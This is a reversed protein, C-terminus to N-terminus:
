FIRTGPLRPQRSVCLVRCTQGGQGSHVGAVREGGVAHSLYISAVVASICVPVPDRDTSHIRIWM